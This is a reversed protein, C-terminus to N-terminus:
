RALNRYPQLRARADGSLGKELVYTVTEGQASRSAIAPADANSSWLHYFRRVEDLCVQWVPAPVTAYGGRYHVVCNQPYANAFVDALLWIIGAAYDIRVQNASPSVNPATHNEISISTVTIIPINNTRHFCEGNGDFTEDTDLTRAKIQTRCYDEILDTVGNILNTITADYTTSVDDPMIWAKAEALTCIAHAYITM